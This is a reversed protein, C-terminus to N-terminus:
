ALGGPAKTPSEGPSVDGHDSAMITTRMRVLYNFLTKPTLFWSRPKADPELPLAHTLLYDFEDAIHPQPMRVLLSLAASTIFSLLGVLLISLARHRALRGLTREAGRFWRGLIGEEGWSVSSASQSTHFGTPQPQTTPM